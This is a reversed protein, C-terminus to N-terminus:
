AWASPRSSVTREESAASVNKTERVVFIPRHKVQEFVRGIYLGIVGLGILILGSLL